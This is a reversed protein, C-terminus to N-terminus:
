KATLGGDVPINTGTIYASADSALLVIVGKLDQENAMRGLFTRGCYRTLFPEPQNDFFGGPLLLLAPAEDDPGAIHQYDYRAGSSASRM